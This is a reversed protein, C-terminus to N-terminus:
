QGNQRRRFGIEPGTRATSLISLARLSRTSTAGGGLTVLWAANPQYQLELEVGKIESRGVNALTSFLGGGATGPANVLVQQDKYKMFFATANLRLSGDLHTGKYGLEYSDIFEPDTLAVEGPLVLAGGNFEGGKFGRSFSGFVQRDDDIEYSLSTRGSWERWRKEVASPPILPFLFAARAEPVTVVTTASVAPVFAPPAAPSTQAGFANTGWTEIGAEREDQTWRMGLALTWRERFKRTVEGFLAWSRTEQEIVQATGTGTFPAIFDAANFHAFSDVSDAYYYAGGVWNWPGDYASTVRLEQSWFKADAAFTSNVFALRHGDSDHFRDLTAKDWATVSTITHADLMWNLEVAGGYTEIAENGAALEDTDHFGPVDHLGYGFPDTCQPGFSGPTVGPPCDLFGPKNIVNQGDSRGWHANLLASVADNPEWSLMGRAGTANTDGVNSDSGVFNPNVNDFVGDDEQRSVALRYALKDGIPGGLAGELNLTEFQGATISASGNMEEGPKPKRTIVNILGGTTNRGFLTGQPGRLVEIRQTDFLQIGQAINQGIYVGDIYFGVPMISTAVFSTNGIGRIFALPTAVGFESKLQLNPVHAAIDVVSGIGLERITDASMATMSIPVKQMSEVKKNATVMVEELVGSDDQAAADTPMIAAQALLVAMAPSVMWIKRSASAGHAGSTIHALNM